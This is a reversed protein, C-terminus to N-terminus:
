EPPCAIIFDSEISIKYNYNILLLLQKVQEISPYDPNTGFLRADDIVICHDRRCYRRVANLESIVPCETEGKATGEGSFHGDLWFLARGQIEKLMQPMVKGSDGQWLLVNDTNKFRQKNYEYLERSLEVSMIKNFHKRMTAVTDGYYTGTEIFLSCGHKKGIKLLHQRKYFGYVDGTPKGCLIWKLYRVRMALPRLVNKVTGRIRSM